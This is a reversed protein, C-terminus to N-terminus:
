PMSMWICTHILTSAKDVPRMPVVNTSIQIYKFIDWCIIRWITWTTAQCIRLGFNLKWPEDSLEPGMEGSFPLESDGDSGNDPNPTTHDSDDNDDDGFNWWDDDNDDEYDDDGFPRWDDDDDDEDDGFPWWDSEDGFPWWDEGFESEFLEEIDSLFEEMYAEISEIVSDDDAHTFGRPRCFYATLNEGGYSIHHGRSGCRGLCEREKVVTGEGNTM